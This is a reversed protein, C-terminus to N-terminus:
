FTINLNFGISRQTPMTCYEIGQANGTSYANEPDFGETKSYIMWINRAIASLKVGQIPTKALWSQPLRYGFSIERLRINTADYMWEEAIVNSSIYSWYAQANIAKTNPEGDSKRIGDVVLGGERYPLSKELTGSTTGRMISGMYVKGGYRMDILFSFDFGKYSFSNLLGGMWKPQNNGLYVNSESVPLGDDDTLIKGTAEDRAFGNGYMDGYSGGEKAVVTIFSTSSNSLIQEKTTETLTIIKNKNQSFNLTVNWNFDKSRIPEGTLALEFGSNEVNGANLLQYKKGWSGSIQTKLIQDFANKKYYAFDLGVRNNFGRWELGLEWSRVSEPKLNYNPVYNAESQTYSHILASNQASHNVVMPFYERLMYPDTDNGVEAWSLRLKAFDIAKTNVGARTLTESIIWSGGVSPYFYSRNNAPLTSSWDNRATLDLYLYNEWSFSATGYLSNVQKQTIKSSGRSYIGNSLNYFDPLFMGYASNSTNRISRYMVNGGLTAVIGLQGTINGQGTFLFDGNSELFRDQDLVYDISSGNNVWYPTGEAQKIEGERHYTDLGYRLQLNLWKTFDFKVSAFGLLRDKKDANTNKYASWYLNRAMGSYNSTWSAPNGSVNNGGLVSGNPFAYGPFMETNGLDSFHVSRPMLLYNAFVNDPDGALKMRNQTNQGIYNAKADVTIYKGFKSTARLAINNRQYGSNPVIGKNDVRQYSLRFSQEANGNSLDVSNTYTEGTRLFDTYLDNDYASYPRTLGTYDVVNTGDMKGGWSDAENVAFAGNIGQGYENQFKPTQMPNDFTMGANISIGLGKKASREEFGRKTTVMLVGNAARSGYLAAAAPGKLVSISEIDDPSLDALGSGKDLSKNGWFDDTGGSTNDIPIGDVVVLPQNNSGISSNGRIVIRSSGSGTTKIQVGSIKGSLASAINPDRAESLTEGKVDQVAYGLAKKERKIGLATVVVEDLAHSDESLTVDIISKGDVNIETTLYGIYSIILTSNAGVTLSYNGNLDSVTGNTAGKESISAGILEEGDAGTIKGSVKVKNESAVAVPVQKSLVIHNDTVTFTVNQGELAQKVVEEVSQNQVNVSVRKKLAVDSNGYAVTYNSQLKIANFVEEVTANSLNITVNRSQSYAMSYIVLGIMVLSIRLFSYNILERFSRQTRQKREQKM